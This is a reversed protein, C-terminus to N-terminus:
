CIGHSITSIADIATFSAAIIRRSAATPRQARGVACGACVAGQVPQARGGPVCVHETPHIVCHARMAVHRVKGKSPKKLQELREPDRVRIPVHEVVVPEPGSGQMGPIQLAWTLWHDCHPTAQSAIRRAFSFSM